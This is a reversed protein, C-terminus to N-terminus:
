NSHLQQFLRQNKKACYLNGSARVLRNKVKKLINLILEKRFLLFHTGKGHSVLMDPLAKRIHIYARRVMKHTYWERHSEEKFTKQDLYDKYKEAWLYFDSIWQRRDNHTKILSIM